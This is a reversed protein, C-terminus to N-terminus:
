LIHLKMVIKLICKLALITSICISSACFINWISKKTYQIKLNFVSQCCSFDRFKQSKRIMKNAIICAQLRQRLLIEYKHCNVSRLNVTCLKSIVLSDSNASIQLVALFSRFYTRASQTTTVIHRMIGMDAESLWPQGGPPRRLISLRVPVWLHRM